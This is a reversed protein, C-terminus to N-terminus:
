AWLGCGSVICERSLHEWAGAEWVGHELGRRFGVGRDSESAETVEIGKAGYGLELRERM